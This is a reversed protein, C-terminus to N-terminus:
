KIRVKGQLEFILGDASRLGSLGLVADKPVDEPLPGVELSMREIKTLRMQHTGGRDRGASDVLRILGTKGRDLWHLPAMTRLSLYYEEGIKRKKLSRIKLKVTQAAVPKETLVRVSPPIAIGFTSEAGLTKVFFLLNAKRSGGPIPIRVGSRHFRRPGELDFIKRNSAFCRLEALDGNIEVVSIAAQNSELPVAIWGSEFSASFCRRLDLYGDDAQATVWWSSKSGSGARWRSPARKPLPGPKKAPNQKLLFTQVKKWKTNWGARLAGTPAKGFPGLSRYQDKDESPAKSLDCKAADPLPRGDVGLNELPGQLHPDGTLIQGDLACERVFIAENDHFLNRRFSIPEIRTMLPLHFESPDYVLENKSFICDRVISAASIATGNRLFLCHAIQCGPAYLARTLGNRLNGAARTCEFFICRDLVPTAQLEAYIGTGCFAFRCRLIEPRSAGGEMGTANLGASAVGVEVGQHCDLFLCDEIQANGKPIQIATYADVFRAGRLHRQQKGGYRPWLVIGHWSYKADKSKSVPTFTVPLGPAGEIRISGKVHIEVLKKRWARNAKDRRAILVKTNPRIVLTANVPIEIDAEVRVTGEWVTQGSLVGSAVKTKPTQASSAASSAAASGPFLFLAWSLLSMITSRIM